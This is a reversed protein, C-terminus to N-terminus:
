LSNNQTKARHFQMTPRHPTSFLLKPSQNLEFISSDVYAKSNQSQMKPYNTLPLYGSEIVNIDEILINYHDKIDDASKWPLANTMEDLQNNNDENTALTNELIKDEEKTWVSNNCTRDTNM